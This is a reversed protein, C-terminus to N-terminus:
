LKKMRRIWSKRSEEQHVLNNKNYALQNNLVKFARNIRIPKCGNRNKLTQCLLNPKLILRAHPIM